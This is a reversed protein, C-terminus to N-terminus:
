DMPLPFWGLVTGEVPNQSRRFFWQGFQYTVVDRVEIGADDIRIKAYVIQGSDPREDPSKWTPKDELHDSVGLVYDTTCRLAAAVERPCDINDPALYNDYFRSDGFEGRAYQRLTGVTM